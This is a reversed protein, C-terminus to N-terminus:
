VSCLIRLMDLVMGQSPPCRRRFLLHSENKEKHLLEKLICISICMIKLFKAVDFVKLGNCAYHHFYASASYSADNTICVQDDVNYGDIEYDICYYAGGPM